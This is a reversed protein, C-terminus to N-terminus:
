KKFSMRLFNLLGRQNRRDTLEWVKRQEGRPLFCRLSTIGSRTEKRRQWVALVASTQGRSRSNWQLGVTSVIVEDDGLEHDSSIM